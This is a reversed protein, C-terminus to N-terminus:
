SFLSDFNKILIIQERLKIIKVSFLDFYDVNNSIQSQLDVIPSKQQIM